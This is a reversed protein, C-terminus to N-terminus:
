RAASASFSALCNAPAACSRMSAPMLWYLGVAFNGYPEVPSARACAPANIPTLARVTLVTFASCRAAGSRTARMACYARM